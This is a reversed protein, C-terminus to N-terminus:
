KPPLILQRTAAMTRSKPRTICRVQGSRVQGSRVQGSRVKLNFNFLGCARRKRTWTSRDRGSVVGRSLNWLYHRSRRSGTFNARDWRLDPLRWSKGAGSAAVDSSTGTRRACVFTVPDAPHQM